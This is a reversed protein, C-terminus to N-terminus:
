LVLEGRTINSSGWDQLESKLQNYDDEVSGFMDVPLAPLILNNKLKIIRHLIHMTCYSLFTSYLLDAEDFFYFGSEDTYNGKEDYDHIFPRQCICYAAMKNAGYWGAAGNFTLTRRSQDYWAVRTGTMSYLQGIPHVNVVAAPVLCIQDETIIGKLYERFNDYFTFEGNSGASFVVKIDIYLPTYTEFDQIANFICSDITKHAVQEPTLSGVQFGFLEDLEILYSAGINEKLINVLNNLNIKPVM